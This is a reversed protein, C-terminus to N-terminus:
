PGHDNGSRDTKTSMVQMKASEVEEEDGKITWHVLVFGSQCGNVSIVTAAQDSPSVFVSDGPAPSQSDSGSEQVRSAVNPGNEGGFKSSQSGSKGSKKSM